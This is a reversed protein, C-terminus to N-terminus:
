RPTVGRWTQWDEWIEQYWSLFKDVQLEIGFHKKIFVSADQGMRYRLNDDDLLTQIAEAFEAASNPPVLFGTHGDQIQEPIGGVETAVVSTGCAGAESITKGFAEDFAAHIYIDAANYYQALKHRDTVWGPYMMRGHGVAKEPAQRGLCVFLLPEKGNPRIRSLAAEMLDYNKFRNHAILLVIKADDQLELAQRALAKPQAHFISFDTGNHIVRKQVGPLMSRDVKDMLWQSVTTVYLRSDAYTQRKREWNAASNDQRIPPYAELYPCEGCGTEWRQCDFSHACHGSLLWSDRLNVIVPRQKSLQALARLDFYSGHLNHCHIIDPVAPLQSLLHRTGLHEFDEWGLQRNRWAIPQAVFRLYTQLTDLRPIGKQRWYSTSESLSLWLRTWPNTTYPSNKIQWVKPHNSFKKGVALWSDYGREELATFLGWASGEAGGGADRSNVQLIRQFQSSVHTM